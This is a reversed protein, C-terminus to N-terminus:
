FRLKRVTSLAFTTEEDIGRGMQVYSGVDLSHLNGLLTVSEPIESSVELEQIRQFSPISQVTAFMNDIFSGHYSWPQLLQADLCLPNVLVLRSLNPSLAVLLRQVSAGHLNTLGEVWDEKISGSLTLSSIFSVAPSMFALDAQSSAALHHTSGTTWRKIHHDTAFIYGRVKPRLNPIRLLTRCLSVAPIITKFPYRTSKHTHRVTPTHYLFEQAIPFLRRCVLALDYFFRDHASTSARTSPSGSPEDIKIYYTHVHLLVGSLLEDSFQLFRPLLTPETTGADMTSISHPIHNFIVPTGFRINISLRPKAFTLPAFDMIPSYCTTGLVTLHFRQCSSARTFSADHRM